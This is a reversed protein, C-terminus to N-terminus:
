LAETTNLISKCDGYAFEEMVDSFFRLQTCVLELQEQTYDELYGKDVIKNMAEIHGVAEGHTKAPAEVIDIEDPVELKLAKAITRVARETHLVLEEYTVIIVKHFHDVLVPKYSQTWRGWVGSLHLFTVQGVDGFEKKVYGAPFKHTCPKELWDDGKVCTTLEYPAKKISQLWSLPNRVMVLPVVEHNKMNDFAQPVKSDVWAVNAHKWVGKRQLSATSDFHVVQNGFNQYLLQSLLNTGTDQLGLVQVAARPKTVTIPSSPIMTLAKYEHTQEFHGFRQINEETDAADLIDIGDWFLSWQAGYDASVFNRTDSDNSQVISPNPISLAVSEVCFVASIINAFPM